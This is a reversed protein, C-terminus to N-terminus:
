AAFTERSQAGSESLINKARSIDEATGHALLLFKGAKIDTEYKLISDKPVGLSYLAGGIASLGGYVAAGELMGVLVSALHGTVVIPGMGPILFLGSGFLLGWIGGWVAGFKGWTKIRDGSNYFGVVERDSEFDKAVISLKKMDFGSRKLERVASEASQNSSYLEVLTSKNNMKKEM